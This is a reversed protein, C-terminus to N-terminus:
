LGSQSSKVQIEYGNTAKLLRKQCDYVVHTLHQQTNRHITNGTNQAKSSRSSQNTLRTSHLGKNGMQQHFASFHTWYAWLESLCLQGGGGKGLKKDFGRAAAKRKAPTQREKWDLIGFGGKEEELLVRMAVKMSDGVKTQKCYSWGGGSRARDTMQQVKSCLGKAEGRERSEGKGLGETAEM